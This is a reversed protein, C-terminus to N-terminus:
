AAVAPRRLVSGWSRRRAPAAVARTRSETATLRAWASDVDVDTDVDSRLAAGVATADDRAEALAVLCVPCEAVHARDADAVGAPEDVLRRLVGETPHRM